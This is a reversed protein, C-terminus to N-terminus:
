YEIGRRAPTGHEYPHKVPLLETVYDAAEILARPANRGTLVIEVGDARSDLIELLHAEDVLGTALAGLAEDLVLMDCGGERVLREIFALASGIERKLKQKKTDDMQYFFGHGSEFRCVQWAPDGLAEVFAVEGTPATKLFQVICVRGGCGRCRMALGFAATTKGKGDGTYIHVLGRGEILRPEANNCEM